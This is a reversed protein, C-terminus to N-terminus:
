FTRMMGRGSYGSAGVVLILVFLFICFLIMVGCFIIGFLGCWKGAVNMGKEPIHNEMAYEKNKNAKVLSIISLVLGPINFLPLWAMILGGIGLILSTLAENSHHSEVLVINENKKNEM